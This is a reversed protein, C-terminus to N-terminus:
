STKEMEANLADAMIVALREPDLKYAYCATANITAIQSPRAGKFRPLGVAWNWNGSEVHGAKYAEAKM